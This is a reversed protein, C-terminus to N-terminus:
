PMVIEFWFDFQDLLGVLDTLAKAEGEVKATGAAVLAELTKEGLLLDVFEPRTIAVSADAKDARRDKLHHLVANELTLLYREKTDTFDINLAMVRAGAKPGNLRVSLSDLLQEAPLTRLQGAAGSRPTASPPRPNRLEMAATLYFGRWPGSEAQYGMQELADAQL